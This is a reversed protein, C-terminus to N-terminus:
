HVNVDFGDLYPTSVRLSDVQYWDAVARNLHSAPNTGLPEGLVLIHHPLLNQFGEVVVTRQGRARAARITAARAENQAKWSAANELWERWANRETGGSALLVVYLLAPLRLSALWHRRRAQAPSLQDPLAAWLAVLWGSLLWFWLFNLSRVAPYGQWTRSLLLLAAFLGALVIGLSWALPLRLAAPRWHRTRYGLRALLLPAVVLATLQRPETLFMVTVAVARGIVHVIGPSASKTEYAMRAFNGPALVAVAGAGATLLLLALWARRSGTTGRRWTAATLVALLWLLLLLALENSGAVGVAAMGAVGYWAARGLATPARGARLVAVPVLVFLLTAVQYTVTSAFWYFGSNVSPMTYLQGQLWAGSWALAAGWGLRAATLTRLALAQVGATAGFLALAFWRVGAEWGYTLPNLATLWLGATYRGTWTTYLHRLAPLAGRDRALAANGYDDWFPQNYGCLALYPLLLVALTLFVVAPKHALLWRLGARMRPSITYDSYRASPM